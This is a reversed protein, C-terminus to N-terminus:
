DSGDKKSSKFFNVTSNSAFNAKSAILPGKAPYSNATIGGLDVTKTYPPSEPYFHELM